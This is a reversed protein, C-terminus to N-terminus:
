NTLKDYAIITNGCQAFLLNSPDNGKALYTPAVQSPGLQAKLRLGKTNVIGGESIAIKSFSWGSGMARLRIQKEIAFQVLWQLNRTTQQYKAQFTPFAATFAPDTVTLDFCADRQFHQTFNHHVNTWKLLSLLKIGLPLHM